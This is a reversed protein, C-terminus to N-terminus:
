DVEIYELNLNMQACRKGEKVSGIIWAPHSTSSRYEECFSAADASPLCILLGGSTEVAKGALLKASRGLVEAMERVNKIIPLKDIHFDVEAKQYKALNEAHGYLGFGTVDTAAHANYKRMLKAGTLNLRCMSELAIRYTEEVDAVSFREQLRTWNDSQENMWIYVNTALQTGLPKTLVIADGVEANYPMTLESRHCVATAAGGIICWPNEAISGIHVPAKCEKAASLFGDMVMPVVVDREKETFETPASVILKIQDIETAGVAYVDSVVNALAIRGLTFPDDILPYFFDVSQVLFLEDRLAIVSSDLGIGVGEKSKDDEPKKDVVHQQQQEPYVRLTSFKTLRFDPSLGHSEPKFM